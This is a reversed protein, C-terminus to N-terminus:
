QPRSVKTRNPEDAKCGGAYSELRIAHKLATDLDLPDKDLIRVRLDEDDLADLFADCAILDTVDDTRNPYALLILRAIDQYLLQLDEGPKRHRARLKARYRESQGATGFRNKLLRIAADVTTKKGMNWLIHGANGTLNFKLHFLKDCEKWKMYEAVCEFRALWTEFCDTGDYPPLRTNVYGSPNKPNTEDEAQTAPQTQNDEDPSPDKAPEKKVSKEPPGREDGAGDESERDKGDRASKDSKEVPKKESGSGAAGKNGRRGGSRSRSRSSSSSSDPSSDRREKTRTRHGNGSKGKTRERGRKTSRSRSTVDHSHKNGQEGHTVDETRRRWVGAEHSAARPNVMNSLHVGDDAPPNTSTPFTSVPQRDEIFVPPENIGLRWEGYRGNRQVMDNNTAQQHDIHTQGYQQLMPVLNGVSDMYHEMSTPIRAGHAPMGPTSGRVYEAQRVPQALGPQVTVPQHYFETPPVPVQAYGVRLEAPYGHAREEISVRPTAVRGVAASNQSVQYTTPGPFQQASTCQVNGINSDHSELQPKAVTQTIQSLAQDRWRPDPMRQRVYMVSDSEAGSSYYQFPLPTPVVPSPVKRGFGASTSNVHLPPYGDAARGGMNVMPVTNDSQYLDSVIEPPVAPAVGQVFASQPRSIGYNIAVDSVSKSIPVPRPTSDIGALLMGDTSLSITTCARTPTTGFHVFHGDTLLEQTRQYATEYQSQALCDNVSPTCQGAIVYPTSPSSVSDIVVYSSLGSSASEVSNVSHRRREDSGHEAVLQFTSDDLTDVPYGQHRNESENVNYAQRRHHM